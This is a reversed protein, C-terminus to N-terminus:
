FNLIRHHVVGYKEKIHRCRSVSSGGSSTELKKFDSLFKKDLMSFWIEVNKRIPLYHKPVEFYLEVVGKPELTKTARYKEPLFPDNIKGLRLLMGPMRGQISDWEYHNIFPPLEAEQTHLVMISDIATNRITISYIAASDGKSRYLQAVMFTQAFVNGILGSIMWLVSCSIIRKLMAIFNLLYNYTVLLNFM